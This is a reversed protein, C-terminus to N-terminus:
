CATRRRYARGADRIVKDTRPRLFGDAGVTGCALLRYVTREYDDICARLWALGYDAREYIQVGEEDSVLHWEYGHSRVSGRANCVGALISEFATLHLIPVRWIRRPKM